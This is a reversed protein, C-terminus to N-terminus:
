QKAVSWNGNLSGQKWIGVKTNLSGSLYFGSNSYTDNIVGNDYVQGYFTETMNNFLRKVEINGAKYVIIQIQGNENGNYVGYWNGQYPSTYNNLETNFQNQEFIRQCSICCFVIRIAYNIEPCM